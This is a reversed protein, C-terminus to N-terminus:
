DVSFSRPGLFPFNDWQSLDLADWGSLFDGDIDALSQQFSAWLGNDDGTLDMADGGLSNGSNEPVTGMDSSGEAVKDLSFLRGVYKNRGRTTLRRRPTEIASLLLGLIESYHAAQPSQVALSALIEKASRFGKEVEYDSNREAVMVFGLILGTAFVLAKMICMNGLLLHAQHADMCVQILYLAADLCASAMQSSASTEPGPRSSLTSILIPRTVLTVAFYYMCSVHVNRITEAQTRTGSADISETKLYEPLSRSWKDIDDLLREAAAHAVTEKGYLEHAAANIITSIKYSAVLCIMDPDTRIGPSEALDQDVEFRLSLTAPPRGLIASVLMDVICLSTWVRLRLKEDSSNVDTYSDRRHLGLAVAARTAIGLYLFATNRRCHGLMYFTMLVFARVMDLDPDELMAAFSRTQARRFYHQGVGQAAEPSKCQAGIAVVLDLMTRSGDSLLQTQANASDLLVEIEPSALIDLFGGTVARYIDYHLLVDENGLAEPDPAISVAAGSTTPATELMNQSKDNRTFQSPGIQEEVTDRLFQLFSISAAEGIFVRNGRLNLLMRAHPDRNFSLKRTGGSTTSQVADPSDVRSESPSIPRYEEAENRSSGPSWAPSAAPPLSARRQAQVTESPPPPPPGSRLPRGQGSGGSGSTAVLPGAVPDQSRRRGPDQRPSSAAADTNRRSGWPRHTLYCSAEIGRKTCATCPVTASCRKKSARCFNCAEAARQRQSPHVRPRPM